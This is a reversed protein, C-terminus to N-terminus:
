AFKLALVKLPIPIAISQSEQYVGSLSGLVKNENHWIWPGSSSIRVGALFYDLPQPRRQSFPLRNNRGARARADAGFEDFAAPGVQDDDVIRAAEPHAPM